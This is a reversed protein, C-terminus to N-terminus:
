IPFWTMERRGRGRMLVPEGMKVMRLRKLDSLRRRVEIVELHLMSAYGSATQGPAHRVARLVIDLHTIRSGGARSVDREAEISTVPDGVHSTRPLRADYALVRTLLPESLAASAAAELEFPRIGL